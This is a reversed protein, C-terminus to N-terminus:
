SRFRYFDTGDVVLVPVCVGSWGRLLSVSVRDGGSGWFLSVGVRDGGVRASEDQSEDHKGILRNFYFVCLRVTNKSHDMVINITGTNDTPYATM